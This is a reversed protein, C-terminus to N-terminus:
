YVLLVNKETNVTTNAEVSRLQVELNILKPLDNISYTKKDAFYTTYAGTLDVVNKNVTAYAPNSADVNALFQGDSLKWEMAKASADMPTVPEAGKKSLFTVYDMGAPTLSDLYGTEVSGSRWDFDYGGSLPANSELKLTSAVDGVAAKGTVKDGAIQAPVKSPTMANPAIVKVGTNGVTTTNLRNTKEDIDALSTQMKKLDADLTERVKKEEPATVMEYFAKRSDLTPADLAKLKTAGSAGPNFYLRWQDYKQFSTDITEKNSAPTNPVVLESKARMTLNLIQSPFGGANVLYVGIYGTTGFVYISGSPAGQPKEQKMDMTSATMFSQYEKADASVAGVNEFKLLVMAKTKDSSSYVGVVNGKINTKSTTFVTSYVAQTGLQQRNKEVSFSFGAVMLLALTTTIVAMMLGFREIMHHSDLRLKKGVSKITDMAGM